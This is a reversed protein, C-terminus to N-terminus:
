PGCTTRPLSLARVLTKAMFHKHIEHKLLSGVSVCHVAALRAVYGTLSETHATGVGCPPLAVLRSRAPLPPLQPLSSEPHM